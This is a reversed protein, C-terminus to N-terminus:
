GKLVSQIIVTWVYDLLGLFMGSILVMVVVVVTASATEKQTPWAVRSLEAVVENMFQNIRENRYLIVFTLAGLIISGVRIILDISRIKAEWDFSGSLKYAISNLIFALLAAVALYSINVWKQYQNEMKNKRDREKLEIKEPRDFTCDGNLIWFFQEHIPLAPPVRVWM